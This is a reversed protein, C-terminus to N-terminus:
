VLAQRPTTGHQLPAISSVTHSRPDGRNSGVRERDLNKQSSHGGAVEHSSAVRRCATREDNAVAITRLVILVQRAVLRKSSRWAYEACQCLHRTRDQRGAMANRDAFCHTNRIGNSSCVAGNELEIRGRALILTAWRHANGNEASGSSRLDSRSVM